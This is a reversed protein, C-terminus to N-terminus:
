GEDGAPRDAAAKEKQVEDKPVVQLVFGQRAVVKIRTGESIREDSQATWLEGAVQVTGEDDIDTRAEGTRGILGELDHSPRARESEIVSRVVVWFFGATIASMVVALIPDVAPRWGEGQFLFTSGVVLALISIVLFITNGSQRVALIFPFVGLLLVILAWLNIPLNYVGWGALILLIIAGGEMFGTGPALMALVALLFGSILAVYAVNPNLLFDVM